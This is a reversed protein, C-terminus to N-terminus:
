VGVGLLLWSLSSCIAVAGVLSLWITRLSKTAIIWIIILAYVAFSVLTSAAVAEAKPLPWILALLVTASATLAYGGVIAALLRAVMLWRYRVSKTMSTM